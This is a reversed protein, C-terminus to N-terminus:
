SSSPITLEQGIRIRSSHLKNKIRLLSQSVGYKNAIVSLSEGSRVTHTNLMTKDLVFMQLRQDNGNPHHAIRFQRIGNFIANALKNQYYSTKLKKEETPNSIFATEVLMSPIDPSKLVVFAASEVQNRLLKTVRGLEYLTNKALSLSNDITAAQALDMLMTALTSDKSLQTGSLRKEYNNENSALWRAAESSAGKESLIYVSSGTLHKNPNADAHISIFLNAHHKRAIQMRERLPIYYDGSRVLVGRMNPARDLIAKLRKAIQLVVTKEYTGHSGVAGSDKGGHGADIAVVFEGRRKRSPQRQPVPTGLPQQHHKKNTKVIKKAPQKVKQSDEPILALALNRGQLKVQADTAQTVDFVIRLNGNHQAHRIKKLFNPPKGKLQLEGSANLIDLVVRHPSKLSFTKYKVPQSFSFEITQNKMRVDKLQSKTTDAANASINFSSASFIVIFCFTIWSSSKLQRSFLLM